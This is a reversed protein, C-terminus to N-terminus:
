YNTLMWFEKKVNEDEISKEKNGNIKEMVLEYKAPDIEKLKKTLNYRVSIHSIGSIEAIERLSKGELYLNAQTICSKEEEDM